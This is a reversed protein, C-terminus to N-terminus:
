RLFAPVRVYITTGKGPAAEIEIDGGVLVARERMGSLGLGHGSEKSVTVEAPEFGKGDDEIILTINEGMKELLVSVNTAEAHKAINNLAEQTIRYVHTEVDRDFRAPALGTSHFDAAIDYHKSWENVYAGVADVLGLDDLTSPRLEWALFSVETDLREGIEQLRDVRDSMAQDDKSAEKLSAIKLRLATL